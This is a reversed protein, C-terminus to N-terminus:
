WETTSRQGGFVARQGSVKYKSRHWRFRKEEIDAIGQEEGITLPHQMNQVFPLDKKRVIQQFFDFPSSFALEIRQQFAVRRDIMRERLDPKVCECRLLSTRFEAPCARLM